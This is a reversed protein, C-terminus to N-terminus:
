KRQNLFYAKCNPLNNNANEANKTKGYWKYLVDDPYTPDNSHRLICEPYFGYTAMAFKTDYDNYSISYKVYGSQTHTFMEAALAEQRQKTSAFQYVNLFPKTKNYLRFGMSLGGILPEGDLFQLTEMAEKYSYTPNTYIKAYSINSQILIVPLFVTILLLRQWSISKLKKKLIYILVYLLIPLIAILKRQPYDNIFVTQILFSFFVALVLRDCNYNYNNNLTSNLKKRNRLGEIFNLCDFAFISLLVVSVALFYPNLRFFNALRISYIHSLIKYLFLNSDGAITAKSHTLWVYILQDVFRNNFILMLLLLIFLITFIGLFYSCLVFIMEKNITKTKEYEYFVIYILGALILFANTPYVFVWATTFLLSIVLPYIPLLGVKRQTFSDRQSIEIILFLVFSYAAMRFITPEAIRNSLTFSFDTILVLACITAELLGFRKYFIVIFILLVAFGSIVSPLRLGLYTDGFIKLSIATFIQQFINFVFLFESDLYKGTPTNIGEVMDFANPTYYFEDIPSYYSLEWIPIDSDIYALRTLFYVVSFIIILFTPM